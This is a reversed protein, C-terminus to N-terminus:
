SVFFIMRSFPKKPCLAEEIDMYARVGEDPRSLWRECRAAEVKRIQRLRARSPRTLAGAKRM